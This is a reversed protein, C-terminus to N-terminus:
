HKSCAVETKSVDFYYIHPISYCKLVHIYHTIVPDYSSGILVEYISRKKFINKDIRQCNRECIYLTKIM